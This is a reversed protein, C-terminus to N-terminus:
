KWVFEIFNGFFIYCDFFYKLQFQQYRVFRVRFDMSLRNLISARKTLVSMRACVCVYMCECKFHTVSSSDFIIGFLISHFWWLFFFVLAQVSIEYLWNLYNCYFISQITFKNSCVVNYINFKRCKIKQKPFFVSNIWSFNCNDILFTANILQFHSKKEIKCLKIPKKKKSM